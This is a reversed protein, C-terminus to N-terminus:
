PAGVKSIAKQLAPPLDQYHFKLADPRGYGAHNGKESCYLHYHSRPEGVTLSWKGDESWDWSLDAKFAEIQVIHGTCKKGKAYVYPCPVPQDDEM